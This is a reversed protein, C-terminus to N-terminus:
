LHFTYKRKKKPLKEYLIKAGFKIFIHWVTKDRVSIGLRVSPRVSPSFHEECLLNNEVEDLVGSISRNAKDKLRGV